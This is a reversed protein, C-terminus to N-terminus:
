SSIKIMSFVAYNAIDAYQSEIGESSKLIEDNKEISFIRNIKVLMMDVISSIKMEKWAEGYDSNKKIMLEKVSNRIEDLKSNDFSDENIVDVYGNKYQYIAFLSYNYISMFDGFISDEIEQFGKEEITRIRKIKIYIQDTLSSPRLVRWSPGYDSIKNKILNDSMNEIKNYKELTEEMETVISTLSM